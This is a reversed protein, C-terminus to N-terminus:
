ALRRVDGSCGSRMFDRRGSPGGLHVVHGLLTSPFRLGNMGRALVGHTSVLFGCSDSTIFRGTVIRGIGTHFRRRAGIGNRNFM